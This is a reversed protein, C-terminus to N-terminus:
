SEDVAKQLQVDLTKVHASLFEILKTVQAEDVHDGTRSQEILDDTLQELAQHSERHVAAHIPDVIDLFAQENQHHAKLLDGFMRMHKLNSVLAAHDQANAQVEHLARFLGMHQRNIDDRQSVYTLYKSPSTPKTQSMPSKRHRLSFTFQRKTALPPLRWDDGTYHHNQRQVIKVGADM